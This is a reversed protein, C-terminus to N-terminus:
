NAAMAAEAVNRAIALMDDTRDAPVYLSVTMFEDGTCVLLQPTGISGVEHGKWSAEVGLGAVPEGRGGIDFELSCEADFAANVFLDAALVESGPAGEDPAYECLTADIEVGTVTLGLFGSMADNSVLACPGGTAVGGSGADDGDSTAEATATGGDSSPATADGDAEDDGGCAVLFMACVLVAALVRRM